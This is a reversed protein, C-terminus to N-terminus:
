QDDDELANTLLEEAMSLLRSVRQAAKRVKPQVEPLRAAKRAQAETLYTRSLPNWGGDEFEVRTGNFKVAVDSGVTGSGSNAWYVRVGKTRNM